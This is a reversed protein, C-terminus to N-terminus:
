SVLSENLKKYESKGDFKRGIRYLHNPSLGYWSDVHFFNGMQESLMDSDDDLIAYDTVEQHNNLWIQIEEGRCDGKNGTIGVFTNDKFGLLKLADVWKEPTTKYNKTGFHYRWTSSICIKVDNENCFEALWFWKESCTEYKLRNFQWEFTYFKNPISVDGISRYKHKFGNFIYSIKSKTLYLFRKIKNKLKNHRQQYFIHSNLVGDIDLFIVKM